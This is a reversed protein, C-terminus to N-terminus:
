LKAVAKSYDKLKLKIPFPKGIEIPVYIIEMEKSSKLKTELESVLEIQTTCGLAEGICTVYPVKKYDKGDFKIEIGAPLLMGLPAKITMVKKKAKKDESINMSLAAFQRKTDKHTGIVDQFVGCQEPSTNGKFTVTQCRYVWDAVRESKTVNLKPREIKPADEAFVSMTLLSSAMFFSTIFNRM